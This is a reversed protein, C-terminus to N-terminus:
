NVWKRLNEEVSIEINNVVYEIVLRKMVEKIVESRSSTM